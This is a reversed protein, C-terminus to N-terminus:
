ESDQKRDGIEQKRSRAEQKRYAVAFAIAWPGDHALSVAVGAVGLQRALRAAGGLLRVVPEGREGRMIELENWRVPGIGCGLAKAVAEKAAFRAALSPLPNSRQALAAQEGLSFIRQLFRAPRRRYARTVRAVRILDVGVGTVPGRVHQLM